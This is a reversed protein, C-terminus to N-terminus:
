EAKNGDNNQARSISQTKQYSIERISHADRSIRRHANARHADDVPLHTCHQEGVDTRTNITTINSAYAGSIRAHTV